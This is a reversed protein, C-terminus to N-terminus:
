TGRGGPGRGRRRGGGGRCALVHWPTTNGDTRRDYKSDRRDQSLGLRRRRGPTQTVAGTWGILGSRGADLRGPSLEPSHIKRDAVAPICSLSSVAAAAGPGPRGACWHGIMIQTM